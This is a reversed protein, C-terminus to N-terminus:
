YLLLNYYPVVKIIMYIICLKTKTENGRMRNTDTRPIGRTDSPPIATLQTIFYHYTTGSSPRADCWIARERIAYGMENGYREIENRNRVRRRKEDNKIDYRKLPYHDVRVMYDSDTHTYTAIHMDQLRIMDYRMIKILDHYRYRFIDGRM